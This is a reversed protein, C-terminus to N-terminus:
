SVMFICFGEGFELVLGFALSLRANEWRKATVRIGFDISEGIDCYVRERDRVEALLHDRNWTRSPETSGDANAYRV